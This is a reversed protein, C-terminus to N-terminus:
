RAPGGFRGEFARRNEQGKSRDYVAFVVRAFVGAFAPGELWTGFVEAVEAPDNRFVGCGWAGLVLTRHGEAAAVRLVQGARRELTARIGARGGRDRALVEGANPAPSTLISVLFPTALLELREDRFFPVDPSYILHDTYLMTGCARNEDYYARQTLQCTYLASCRALDEEQAKAGGLFGGGPNKASAFNLAAVRAEREQEVLRRAAAGTTEGTVEVRCRAAGAPAAIELKAYADPRYLRTGGVARAVAGAISVRAGSPLAYDGREAIEVTEKGLGAFSMPQVYRATRRRAIRRRSEGALGLLGQV